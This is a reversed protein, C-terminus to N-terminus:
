KLIFPNLDTNLDYPDSHETKKLFGVLKYTLPTAIIECSCKIIYNAIMITIMTEQPLNGAFAITVFLFSDLAEGLLSSTITRIWLKKGKQIIKMRAMIISNCFSGALYAVMSALIIRPAQGLINQYANQYPWSPDAPLAGVAIIGLAMLVNALFGLWIIKRTIKYGYVETLTDGLLYVFFFFLTGGDLSSGPVSIIKTSTINSILILTVYLVTILLLHKFFRPHTTTNTNSTQINSNSM